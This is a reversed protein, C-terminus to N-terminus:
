HYKQKIIASNKKLSLLARELYIKNKYIKPTDIKNSICYNFFNEKNIFYKIENFNM